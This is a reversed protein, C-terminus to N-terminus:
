GNETEGSDLTNPSNAPGLSRLKEIQKDLKVEYEKYSSINDFWTRYRMGRLAAYTFQVLAIGAVIARVIKNVSELELVTIALVMVIITASFYVMLFTLRAALFATLEVTDDSFHKLLKKEGCLKAIQKERRGYSYTAWFTQARPTLMNALIALPVTFALGLLFLVM